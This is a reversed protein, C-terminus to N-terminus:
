IKENVLDDEINIQVKALESNILTTSLYNRGPSKYAPCLSKVFDLFFPNEVTAFPIGCCVFFKV